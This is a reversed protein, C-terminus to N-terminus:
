DLAGRGLATFRLVLLLLWTSIALQPSIFALGISTLFVLPASAARVTFLRILRPDVDPEILRHGRSAYVWYATSLLGTLTLVSAYFIVVVRAEGYESLLENLFPLFAITMLFLMNLVLLVGDYRVIYRFARHHALWYNGIVLFSIIYGVYKPWLGLLERALDAESPSPPLQPVHIDLALLTIAIAFVADSFFVIREFGLREGATM